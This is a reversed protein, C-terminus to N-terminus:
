SKQSLISVSFTVVNSCFYFLESVYCVFVNFSIFCLLLFDVWQTIMVDCYFVNKRNNKGLIYM